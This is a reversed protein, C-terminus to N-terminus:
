AGAPGRFTPVVGFDVALIDVLETLPLGVVNTYSGRIQRIMCAARGQIAYAGAKDMPEGSLIYAQIEDAALEKFEVDTTVALTRVIRADDRGPGQVCLGTIVQHTQGSLARLMERAAAESRPKEMITGHLVVVTDAAVVVADPAVRGAVDRAKEAANRRVYDAASEGPCAKEETAPTVVEFQYGLQHLFGRRRPSASALVVPRNGSNSTEM